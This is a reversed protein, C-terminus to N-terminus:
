FGGETQLWKGDPQKEYLQGFGIGLKNVGHIRFCFPSMIAWAGRESKRMENKTAGDIFKDQIPYGFDDRKKIIGSWYVPNKTKM